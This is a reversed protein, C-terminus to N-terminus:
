VGLKNTQIPITNGVIPFGKLALGVAWPLTRLGMRDEKGEQTHKRLLGLNYQTSVKWGEKTMGGEERTYRERFIGVV